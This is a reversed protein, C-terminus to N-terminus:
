ISSLSPLFIQLPVNLNNYATPGTFLKSLDSRIETREQKRDRRSSPKGNWSVIIDCHERIKDKPTWLVNVNHFERQQKRLQGVLFRYLGVYHLKEDLLVPRGYKQALAENGVEAVRKGYEHADDVTGFHYGAVVSIEYIELEENKKQLPVLQEESFAGEVFGRPFLICRFIETSDIM